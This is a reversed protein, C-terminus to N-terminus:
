LTNSYSHFSCQFFIDFFTLTEPAAMFLFTKLATAWIRVSLIVTLCNRLIGQVPKKKLFFFKGLLRSLVMFYLYLSRKGTETWHEM